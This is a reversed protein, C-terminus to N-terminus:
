RAPTGAAKRARYETLCAQLPQGRQYICDCFLDRADGPQSGSRCEPEENGPRIDFLLDNFVIVSVAAALVCAFFRFPFAQTAVGAHPDTAPPHFPLAPKLRDYDWVLLFLNALLMLAVIRTGSFRTAHTLMFINLMIPFYLLAGLLATRPILLLIAALLQTVGIFTYYFGTLLLADFYHGLPNNSPLGTFREGSVKVLGAPIFGLALAVRCFIAFRRLWKNQKYEGYLQWM